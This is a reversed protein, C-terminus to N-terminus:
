NKFLSRDVYREAIAANRGAGALLVENIVHSAYVDLTLTNVPTFTDKHLFCRPPKRNSRFPSNPPVDFVYYKVLYSFIIRAIYYTQFYSGRWFLARNRVDITVNVYITERWSDQHPLVLVTMLM